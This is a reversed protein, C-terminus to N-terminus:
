RSSQRRTGGQNCDLDRATAEPSGRGARSFLGPGLILWCMTSTLRRM